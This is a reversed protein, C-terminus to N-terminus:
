TFFLFMAVMELKNLAKMKSNNEGWKKLDKILFPSPLKRLAHMNWHITSLSTMVRKHTSSFYKVKKEISSFEYVIYKQIFYALFFSSASTICQNLPFCILLELAKSSFELNHKCLVIDYL